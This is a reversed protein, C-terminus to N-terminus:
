HQYSEFNIVKAQTKSLFLSDPSLQSLFIVETWLHHLKYLWSIVESIRCAPTFCHDLSVPQHIDFRFVAAQSNLYWRVKSLLCMGKVNQRMKYLFFFDHELNGNRWRRFSSSLFFFFVQFLCSEIYKNYKFSSNISTQGSLGLESLFHFTSIQLWSRLLGIFSQNHLRIKVDSLFHTYKTLWSWFFFHTRCSSCSNWLLILIIHPDHDLDWPVELSYQLEFKNWLIM